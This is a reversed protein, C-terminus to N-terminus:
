ISRPLEDEIELSVLNSNNLLNLELGTQQIIKKLEKILEPSPTYKIYGCAPDINLAKGFRTDIFTQGLVTVENKYTPIFHYHVHSSKEDDDLNGLQAWNLRTMGFAKKCIQTVISRVNYIDLLIQKNEELLLEDPHLHKHPVVLGRPPARQDDDRLKFKCFKTEFVTLKKEELNTLPTCGLCKKINKMKFLKFVHFNM